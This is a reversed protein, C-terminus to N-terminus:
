SPREPPTQHLRRIEAVAGMREYLQGIEQRFKAERQRDVDLGRRRSMGVLAELCQALEYLNGVDRYSEAAKHGLAIAADWDEKAADVLARAKLLRATAWRNGLAQFTSAQRCHETAEDIDGVLVAAEAAVPHLFAPWFVGIRSFRDAHERLLTLALQPQQLRLYLHATWDVALVSSTVERRREAHEVFKLAWSLAEPLAGDRFALMGKAHEVWAPVEEGMTLYQQWSAAAAVWDGMYFHTQALGIHCLTMRPRNNTEQALKLASVNAELAQRYEGLWRLRFANWQTAQIIWYTDRLQEAIKLCQDYHDAAEPRGLLTHIFGLVYQGQAMEPLLGHHEAFQLGQRVHDEAEKFNGLAAQTRALQIYMGALEPADRQSELKEVASLVHPLAKRFDFIGSFTSAIRGEVRAQQVQDGRRLHYSLAEQYLTSAAEWQAQLAHVDALGEIAAIRQPEAGSAEALAQAARFHTVAQENAYVRAANRGAVLTYRLAKPAAEEWQDTKGIEQALRAAQMWHHALLDAFEETREGYTQELWAGFAKHSECRRSKLLMSYAVDRIVIHKFTFERQGELQSREREIIFDKARLKELLPALALESHGTLHALAGSWFVKGLTSAEQLVAKERPDLADLRAAVVGQITDPVPLDPAGAFEWRNNARRLMGGDILMQLIEEVFFPNGEAVVIAQSLPDPVSDINLLGRLLTRTNDDTLPEVFLSTANRKGGGWGPRRELLDPRALCLVLVPVGTVGQAIYEILDLLENDGWHIDEFALIVPAGHAVREIYRRLAWFLDERSDDQTIAGKGPAIGLVRALAAMLQQHEGSHPADLLLGVRDELKRTALPLPDSRLIGCDARIIERLAWLSTTGYPLSRGTYVVVSPPAFRVLEEFLRSKGVGPMGLITILHPKRDEIMRHLLNQLLTFETERGVLPARLSGHGRRPADPHIEVLTWAHVPLSKGKLILPSGATYSAMDGTARYTREGVVITGPAAASRLRAAVNVADGTVMFEGKDAARPNAVVEGTNIGTRLQLVLARTQQLDANLENLRDRMTAAARLARVPDDEHAMPLGFVAMIEDGVFKEVTGDFQHIIDAMADFFRGMISRMQEPDLREAIATSGTVDAFLITVVKREESPFPLLSASTLSKGCTGCFAFGEPNLGGCAPCALGLGAGCQGCFRTSTPNEFGCQPCRM